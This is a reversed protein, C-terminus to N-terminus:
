RNSNGEESGTKLDSSDVGSGPHGASIGEGSIPPVVTPSGDGGKSAIGDGREDGLESHVPLLKCLLGVCMRISEDSASLQGRVAVETRDRGDRRRERIIEESDLM